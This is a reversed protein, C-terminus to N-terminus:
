NFVAQYCMAGAQPGLPVLFIELTGLEAHRLSYTRQPLYRDAPGGRFTLSFGRRAQAGSDGDQAAVGREVEGLVLELDGRQDLAVLFRDGVCGEFVERTLVTEM